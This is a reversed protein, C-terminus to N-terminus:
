QAVPRWEQLFRIAREEGHAMLEAIFAGDRNLKSSLGLGVSREPSMELDRVKIPKKSGTVLSGDALWRNIREIFALEQNLSLNGALENRRDEIEEATTPETARTQPNIRIVWIEDPKDAAALGQLFERIPPNQSFLGDWYVGDEIRVARFLTPLTTSALVADFSIESLCSDFAKFSGSLVEVAGILLRPQYIPQQVAALDVHRELLLRLDLFERRPFLAQLTQVSLSVPASYPSTNLMPLMGRGQLKLVAVVWDNWAKEWPQTASNGQWFNDILEIIQDRSWANQSLRILGFWTLFACIAGGSTGSLGIIRYPMDGERRLLTKLAGATFATHSGGGQCAIVIQSVYPESSM